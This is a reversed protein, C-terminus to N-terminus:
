TPEQPIHTNARQRQLYLRAAELRALWGDDQQKEWANRAANSEATYASIGQPDLSRWHALVEETPTNSRKLILAGEAIADLEYEVVELTHYGDSMTFLAELAVAALEPSSFIGAPPKGYIGTPIIAWVKM